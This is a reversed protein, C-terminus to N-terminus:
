ITIIWTIMSGKLKGKGSNDKFPILPYSKSAKRMTQFEVNMILNIKPTLLDALARVEDTVHLQFENKRVVEMAMNRYHENQGYDAYFNLRAIDLYGWAGRKFVLRMATFIM